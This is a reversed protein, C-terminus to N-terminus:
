CNEAAGFSEAGHIKHRMQVVRKVQKCVLAIEM